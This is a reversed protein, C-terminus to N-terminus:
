APEDAFLYHKDVEKSLESVKKTGTKILQTLKTILARGQARDPHRYAAIMQQYVTWAAQVEAHRHDAFLACHGGAEPFTVAVAHVPQTKVGM